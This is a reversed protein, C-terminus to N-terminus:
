VEAFLDRNLTAYDGHIKLVAEDRARAAELSTAFYGLYIPKSKESVFASFGSRNTCVGLYQCGSGVRARTRNMQNQSPTLARLNSIRNHSRDNDKHGVQVEKPIAGNHWAFIMRHLLWTSGQFGVFACSTSTPKLTGCVVVGTSKRVLGGRMVFGNVERTVTDDYDFTELLKPIDIHRYIM